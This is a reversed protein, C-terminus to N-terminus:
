AAERGLGTLHEIDELAEELCARVVPNTARDLLNRLAAVVEAVEDPGNVDALDEPHEEHACIHDSM